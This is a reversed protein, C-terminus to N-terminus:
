ARWWRSAEKVHKSWVCKRSNIVTDTWDIRQQSDPSCISRAGFALPSEWFTYDGMAM